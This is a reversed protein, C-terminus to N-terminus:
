FKQIYKSNLCEYNWFIIREGTFCPTLQLWPQNWTKPLSFVFHVWLTNHHWSDFFYEFHHLNNFLCWLRRLIVWDNLRYSNACLMLSWTIPDCCMFTRSKQYLYPIYVFFLYMFILLLLPLKGQLLIGLLLHLFLTPFWWQFVM